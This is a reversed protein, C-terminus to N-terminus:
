FDMIAYYIEKPEHNVDFILPWNLRGEKVPHYRLWTEDDAVGWTTVSEIVDKYNRFIAFIDKYVQLQKKIMEPTPATLDSPERHNYVSIDLETVQLKVGLSAYLEIARKIEDMTPSEINWHGQLGIGDVPIGRERMSKVLEYIKKSKEPNCENYDNYYLSVGPMAERAYHFAIDCLNDGLKEQWNSQRMFYGHKDDIAENVVDCAYFGKGYRGGMTDAHMRLTRLVSERDKEFLVDPAQNHWLLTHYRIALNNDMAFNFIKDAPEFNYHVTDPAIVGFKMESRCTVSNFERLIIDRHTDVSSANLAAGMLFYDAYKEKLTM